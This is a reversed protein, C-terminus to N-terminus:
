GLVKKMHFVKESFLHGGKHDADGGRTLNEDLLDVRQDGQPITKNLGLLPDLQGHDSNHFQDLPHNRRFVIPPGM